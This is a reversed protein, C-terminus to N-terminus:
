IYLIAKNCTKCFKPGCDFINLGIREGCVLCPTDGVIAESTVSDLVAEVGSFAISPANTGDYNIAVLPQDLIMKQIQEQEEARSARVSECNCEDGYLHFENTITCKVKPPNSTYCMGDTLSCSGCLM